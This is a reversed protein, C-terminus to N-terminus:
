ILYKCKALYKLSEEKNLTKAKNMQEKSIKVSAANMHGGGGHFEAIKSVDFGDTISRYSKQLHFANMAVIVIYKIHEPNGLGRIFEAIENRYEYDAILIGFKNNFEDNLYIISNYYKQLTQLYEERKTNIKRLEENTYNFEEPNNKLKDIMTTIYTPIQLISFLVALDHAKEGNIKDKVPTNAVKTLTSDQLALDTIYIQDYKFFLNSNLYNNFITDLILNRLVPAYNMTWIM